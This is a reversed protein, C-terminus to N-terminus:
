PPRYRKKAGTLLLRAVHGVYTEPKRCGSVYYRGSIEHSVAKGNIVDARGPKIDRVWALVTEYDNSNTDPILSATEDTM